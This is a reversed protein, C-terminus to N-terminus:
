KEYERFEWGESGRCLQVNVAESLLSMDERTPVGRWATGVGHFLVALSSSKWDEKWSGRCWVFITGAMFLLELALLALLFSVWWWRVTVCTHSALVKGHVFDGHDDSAWPHHRLAATMSDSIGKMYENVSALSAGGSNYLRRIWFDGVMTENKSARITQNVLRESLMGSIISATDDSVRWVCDSPYYDLGSGSDLYQLIKRARDVPILKGPTMHSEPSCDFWTGNRLVMNQAISFFSADSASQSTGALSPQQARLQESSVVTENYVGGSITAYYTNVCPTFSCSFAFFRRYDSSQARTM